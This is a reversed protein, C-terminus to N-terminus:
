KKGPASDTRPDQGNIEEGPVRARTEERPELSDPLDKGEQFLHVDRQPFAITINRDRFQRDIEFRLDSELVVANRIHTWVRLKFILASDGFDHFLVDPEPRRLVRRSGRAAELLTERVLDTDSGYAVGVVITRRLSADKFSWNTVQSSIFESNPIILSANDWTQVVTSRVNIKKVIGWIGNIEVADGTQIPREFLLILGSVFNNFIAQLGFGLGVGLAGFAVTLSTTSVGLVSLSILIGFVWILYGSISTISEQLGVQLGSQGLIRSQLVHRWLRTATHTILLILLAYVFGSLRLTMSGLTFPYNLAHLFDLLFTQKAGWALFFLIPGLVFLMLWLLRTLLWVLPRRTEPFLNEEDTQPAKLHRSWERLSMFCLGAWFLIAATRGWSVAWFLSLKTYGALDLLIMGVPLITGGATLVNRVTRVRTTNWSSTELAELRIRKWFSYNWGLFGVASATRFFLLVAGTNELIYSAAIYVIALIRVGHLLLRIQEPIVQYV